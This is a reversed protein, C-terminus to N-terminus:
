EFDIEIVSIKKYKNILVRIINSFWNTCNKNERLLINNNCDFLLSVIKFIVLVNYFINLCM